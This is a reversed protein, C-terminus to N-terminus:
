KEHAKACNGSPDAGRDEQACLHSQGTTGQTKGKNGKKFITTMNGM